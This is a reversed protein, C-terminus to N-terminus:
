INSLLGNYKSDAPSAPKTANKDGQKKGGQGKQTHDSLGDETCKEKLQGKPSSPPPNPSCVFQIPGQVQYSGLTVSIKAPSNVSVTVGEPESAPNGDDDCVGYQESCWPNPM